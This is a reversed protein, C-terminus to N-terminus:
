LNKNEICGFARSVNGACGCPQHRAPGKACQQVSSFWPIPLPRANKAPHDGCRNGRKSRGPKGDGGSQSILAAPGPEKNFDSGPLLTIGGKPSHLGFCNPGVIRLGQRAIRVIEKQLEIGEIKGTEAFGSSHVQVGTVGHALCDQLVEPVARAPVSVCALDIPGKVEDLNKFIKHGAIDGGRPSIPYLKGKYGYRIQSLAILNGFAGPSAIGGFFALGRPNFMRNLQKKRTSEM